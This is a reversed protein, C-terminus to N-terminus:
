LEMQAFYYINTDHSHKQHTVGAIAAVSLSM